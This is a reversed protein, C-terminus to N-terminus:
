FIAPIAYLKTKTKGNKETSSIWIIRGKDLIPQSDGDFVMNSYKKSYIKKGTDSYVAYNLSTKGKQTTSYLIAFRSDSLKVMRTEGVIVSTTKPHYTTLWKFTVKGTKRNALALFANYKMDYGFGSIKKIKNKHPQSTGCVLVNESGIEMGGVRCGTFNNGHNGTLNLMSLSSVKQIDSGYDSVTTLNLSRPNSDGHDLLYLADDKFKAFQNFSHSAYSENAEKAKMKKTNIKFSINSQHRVGEGFYEFMQRSTMLYLTNGQMDMRCNGADFPAYIGQFTNMAGGKINATKLKKWKSNYQIVQIVTKSTSEKPNNYGIAVYFNGDTGQYFGGWVDYKLKITKTKTVKFSSNLTYIKLNGSNQVCVVHLKGGSQYYYTTDPHAWYSLYQGYGYSSKQKIKSCSIRKTKSKVSIMQSVSPSFDSKGIADMTILKYYYPVGKSVKQKYSTINGSKATYICKYTGNEQTSRYLKYGTAGKFANWNVQLSSSGSKKVSTITSGAMKRATFSEPANPLGTITRVDDKVYGIIQYYYEVNWDVPLTVKNTNAGVTKLTKFKGNSGARQVYYGSCGSIKKWKLTIHNFDTQKPASLSVGWPVVYVRQKYSNKGISVIIDAYGAKLVEYKISEFYYAGAALTTKTGSTIRLINTNSSSISVTVPSSGANNGAYATSSTNGSSGPSYYAKDYPGDENSVFEFTFDEAQTTINKAAQDPTVSSVSDNEHPNASQTGNSETPIKPQMSDTPYAACVPQIASVLLVATLLLATIKKM